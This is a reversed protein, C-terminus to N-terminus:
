VEAAVGLEPRHTARILDSHALRRHVRPIVALAVGIMASAGAALVVLNFPAAPFPVFTDYLVYGLLGAGVTLVGLPLM